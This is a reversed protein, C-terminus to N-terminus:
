VGFNAKNDCKLKLKRLSRMATTGHLLVTIGARLILCVKNNESAKPSFLMRKVEVAVTNKFVVMTARYAYKAVWNRIVSADATVKISGYSNRM